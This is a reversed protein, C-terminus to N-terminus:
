GIKEKITKINKLYNRQEQRRNRRPKMREQKPQLIPLSTNIQVIERKFNMDTAIFDAILM